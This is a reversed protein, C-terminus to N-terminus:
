PSRRVRAVAAHARDSGCAREKMVIAVLERVTKAAGAAIAKRAAEDDLEDRQRKAEETAAARAARQEEERKQRESQVRERESERAALKAAREPDRVRAQEVAHLETERMPVLAGGNNEDRRLVIPRPKAAYNSKTVVFTVIENAPEAEDYGAEAKLKEVVFACQWRPGDVLGTVGRGATADVEGARLSVQNTHHAIITTTTPGTFSECAVIFSTAAANDKEADRGAFRSLPDIVVLRYDRTRIHERLWVLFPTDALNRRSDSDVMRAEVGCLPMVDIDGRQPVIRSVRASRYLRRQCEEADEEALALLVRGPTAVSLAGLWPTGTAVAVALQCVVQTKGAGGPAIMQGVKGLPLVGRSQPHRSDRLLWSRKPPSQTYWEIPAPMVLSAWRAERVARRQREDEEKYAAYPYPPEAEWLPALEGRDNAPAGNRPIDVAM